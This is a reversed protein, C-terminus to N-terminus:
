FDENVGRTASIGLLGVLLVFDIHDHLPTSSEDATRFLFREFFPIHKEHGSPHNMTKLVERVIQDDPDHEVAGFATLRWARLSGGFWGSSLKQTRGKRRPQPFPHKGPESLQERNALSDGGHWRCGRLYHSKQNRCRIFDPQLILRDREGLEL